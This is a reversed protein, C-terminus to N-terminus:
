YLFFDSTELTSVPVNLTISGFDVFEPGLLSLDLVNGSSNRLMNGLDSQSVDGNFFDFAILDEGKTFDEIEGDSNLQSGYYEFIDDGPGGRMSGPHSLTLLHDDGPGGDLFDPHDFGGGWLTDDGGEGYLADVSENNTANLEDNYNSGALIEIGVLIDGESTGGRGVTSDLSVNVGVPSDIYGALDLAGEGGNIFDAGEGGEIIDDGPGGLLIDDGANGFLFDDDRDGALVDIGNGGHLTDDGRGGRVVDDGADGHITDNGQDGYLSDPGDGGEITDDGSAGRM